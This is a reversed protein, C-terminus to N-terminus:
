DYPVPLFDVACGFGTTPDPLNRSNLTWTGVRGPKTRGACLPGEAAGTRPRRM